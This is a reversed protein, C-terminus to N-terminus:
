MAPHFKDLSIKASKLALALKAASRKLLVAYKLDGAITEEQSSSTTYM